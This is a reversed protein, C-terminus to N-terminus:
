PDSGRAARSPSCIKLRQLPLGILWFIRNAGIKELVDILTVAVTESMQDAHFKRVQSDGGTPTSDEM